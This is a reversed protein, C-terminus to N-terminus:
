RPPTVSEFHQVVRVSEQQRAQPRATAPLREAAYDHLHRHNRTFRRFATKLPVEFRSRRYVDAQFFGIGAKTEVHRVGDVQQVRRELKKALRNMFLVPREVTLRVRGKEANVSVPYGSECLLVQIDTALKFDALQHDADADARMETRMLQELILRGTSELDLRDSPVVLDYADADFRDSGFLPRCWQFERLDMREIIKRVQRENGATTRQAREVRFGTDATILVNMVRPMQRASLLGMTGHFITPEQALADAMVSGLYALSRETGHTLRNLVGNPRKIFQELREAPYNFRRGAADILDGDTVVPWQTHSALWDVIRQTRTFVEGHICLHMTM